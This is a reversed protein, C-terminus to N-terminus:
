RRHQSSLQQISSWLVSLSAAVDDTVIAEAPHHSIGRDCRVFLMAVPCIDAIAMADHGAGSPLTLPRIGNDTIASELIKRLGQDCHVASANHTEEVQLSVNREAAIGQISQMIQELALDRSADDASRIDLSFVTNGSIVNVGNPRNSIKGVTAVVPHANAIREVELIMAATAALADQRMTMPVTGAHGAFGTVEISLRRAGAIASVIGVPLNEQELVPGQEIHTEIYGILSEPNITAEAVDDFNLWFARMADALSVGDADQLERWSNPWSQTLARSGLLTSGFRTGEEDGFGVIDVHFPLSIQNDHCYQLVALPALVGLMGDYKGGNPVTDLHSGMLLIKADADQSAYRGWQNGAADQWTQMGASQMWEAVQQNARTHEPTLYRRDVMGPSQTIAGLIDCRTMVDKALQNFESM